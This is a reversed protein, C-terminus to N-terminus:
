PRIRAKLRQSQLDATHGRQATSMTRTTENAQTRDVTVGDHARLVAHSLPHRLRGRSDHAPKVRADMTGADRQQAMPGRTLGSPSLKLPPSPTACTNRTPVQVPLLAQLDSSCVDSSWDSSRM